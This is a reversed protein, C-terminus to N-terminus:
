EELYASKITRAGQPANVDVNEAIRELRLIQAQSYARDSIVDEVDYGTVADVNVLMNGLDTNFIFSNKPTVTSM